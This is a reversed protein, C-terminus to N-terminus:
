YHGVDLAAQVAGKWDAFAPSRLEETWFDRADGDFHEFYADTGGDLGDISFWGYADTPWVVEIPERVLVEHDSSRLISFAFGPRLTPMVCKKLFKRFERETETLLASTKPITSVGPLVEFTTSM